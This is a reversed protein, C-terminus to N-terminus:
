RPSSEKETISSEAKVEKQTSKGWGTFRKITKQPDKYETASIATASGGMTVRGRQGGVGLDCVVKTTREM